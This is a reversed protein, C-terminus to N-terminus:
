ISSKVASTISMGLKEEWPFSLVPTSGGLLAQTRGIENYLEEEYPFQENFMSTIVASLSAGERGNDTANFLNYLRTLPTKLPSETPIPHTYLFFIDALVPSPAHAGPEREELVDRLLAFVLSHTLRPALCVYLS